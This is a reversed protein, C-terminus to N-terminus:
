VSLKFPRAMPVHTEQGALPRVPHSPADPFEWIIIRRLCAVQRREHAVFSTHGVDDSVQLKRPGLHVLLLDDFSHRHQLARWHNNNSQNTVGGSRTAEAAQGGYPGLVQRILELASVVLVPGGGLLLSECLVGGTQHLLLPLLGVLLVNRLNLLIGRDDAHNSNALHIEAFDALLLGVDHFYLDVTAGDSVLHFEAELEKFGRNWDVSNEIWTLDNVRQGDRFTVTKLTHNSTPTDGTQRTLGVLTQTLHSTDTGPMRGTDTVRHWTSTLITEMM